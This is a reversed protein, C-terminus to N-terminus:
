EARLANALPLAAARRAPVWGAVLAATVFLASIIAVAQPDWPELGYVASTLFKGLAAASLAGFFLGIGVLRLSQALVLRVIAIDDAGMAMRVALEQTRQVVSYSTIGYIGLVALALGLVAFVGLLLLTFRRSGLSTDVLNQLPKADYLPQTPDAIAVATHMAPLVAGGIHPARAIVGVFGRPVQDFPVYLFSQIPEDMGMDRTDAVVGVVSFPRSVEAAPTMRVLVRAGLPNRGGFYKAVLTESVVCVDPAERTDSPGVARGAIVRVGLTAFYDGAVARMQTFPKVEPKPAGEIQFGWDSWGSLPLLSTLGVAEVGPIARVNQLVGSAFRRQEDEDLYRPESLAVSGVYVNKPEFGPSTSTLTVLSRLLMGTGVLLVLAVAVQAVVLASRLRIASAGSTSRGGERLGVTPSLRGAHWAPAAGALLGTVVSTAAAFALVPWQLAVEVRAVISTDSAAALLGDMAARGIVVGLIGGALALVLSEVFFQVAIRPATAGLAVRVAIERKRSALRALTLSVVNACAALLVLMVAGLLLNLTLANRATSAGKLSEATMAWGGSREYAAPYDDYFSEGLQLMDSRASDVSAGPKLRAIVAIYRGGRARPDLQEARFRLPVWVDRLEGEDGKLDGIRHEHEFVPSLVGIITHPMGDLEISKGVVDPAGAFARRHFASSIIVVNAAGALDEGSAFDRGLIPPVGLVRFFEATVYGAAIRVAEGRGTLNLNGSAYGAARALSHNKDRIDFFENPSSPVRPLGMTKFKGYVNVLEHAKPFPLPRLVVAYLVSFVATVGGIALALTLVVTVTYTRVRALSKVAFHADERIALWLEALGNM